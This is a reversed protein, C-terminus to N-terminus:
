RLSYNIKSIPNADADMAADAAASSCFSLGCVAITAADASCAAATAADAAAAASFCSSGCAAITASVMAADADAMVMDQLIRADADM